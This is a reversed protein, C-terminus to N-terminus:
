YIERDAASYHGCRIGTDVCVRYGLKRVKRYFYLDQTMQGVGAEQLTKFWPRRLRKDRFIDTRMLTFGMGAGNCEVIDGPQWGTTICEFNDRGKHPDGFILPMSVPGKTWYLGNAIDYGDAIRDYLQWVPGKTGPMNPVVIDDEVFLIYPFKSLQPHQLITAVAEEYADGVEYGGATLKVFPQNMPRIMREWSDVVVPAIGQSIVADYEMPQGCHDCEKYRKETREGRVALVWVTSLDKYTDGKPLAAYEREHARETLQDITLVDVM